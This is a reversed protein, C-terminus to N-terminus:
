TAIGSSILKWLLSVEEKYVEEATFCKLTARRGEEYPSAASGYDLVEYTKIDDPGQPQFALFEYRGVFLLSVTLIEGCEPSARSILTERSGDKTMFALEHVQQYSCMSVLQEVVDLYRDNCECALFWWSEGGSRPQVCATDDLFTPLDVLLLELLVSSPLLRM